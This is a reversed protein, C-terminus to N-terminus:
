SQQASGTLPPQSVKLGISVIEKLQCRCDLLGIGAGIGSGIATNRVIHRNHRRGLFPLGFGAAGGIAAGKFVYSM